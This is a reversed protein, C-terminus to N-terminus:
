ATILTGALLCQESNGHRHHTRSQVLVAEHGSILSGAVALATAPDRIEM